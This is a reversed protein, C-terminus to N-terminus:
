GEKPQRCNKSNPQLVPVHGGHGGSHHPMIEEKPGHRVVKGGSIMVIEDALDIIREQHSIVIITNERTGHLM